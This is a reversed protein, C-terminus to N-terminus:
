QAFLSDCSAGTVKVTSKGEEEVIGCMGEPAINAPVYRAGTIVAEAANNFEEYTSAQCDHDFIWSARAILTPLKDQQKADWNAM